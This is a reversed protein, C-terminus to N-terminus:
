SMARNIGLALVVNEAEGTEERGDRIIVVGEGTIARGRIGEKRGTVVEVKWDSGRGSPGM